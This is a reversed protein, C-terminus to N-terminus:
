NDESKPAPKRLQLIGWILFIVILMIAAYIHHSIRTSPVLDATARTAATLVMLWVIWQWSRSRLPAGKDYCHGMVVRDAVLLILQTFGGLFLLHEFAFIEGPRIARLLFAVCVMILGMRLAWARTGPARRQFLTPLLAVAWVVVAFLRTVNGWTVSYYVEIFFSVVIVIATGWVFVARRAPSVMSPRKGEEHFFRPFLYSGVGLIPLILFGQYGFLRLLYDVEPSTLHLQFGWAFLVGVSMVVSLFALSFGPPPLSRDNSFLRRGLIVLLLCGTAAALFDGLAISSKAYALQTLVWGIALLSVEVRNLASSELFRPWATGLFGFVFAAGFGFILIRPHQLAPYLPWWGVYHLPWLVLGFIAAVIGLPFFVRFPESAWIPGGTSLAEYRPKGM